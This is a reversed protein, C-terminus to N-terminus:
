GVGRGESDGVHLGVGEGVRNGVNLAPTGVRTGELEGLLLGM